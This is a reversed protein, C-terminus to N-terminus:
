EPQAGGCSTQTHPLSHLPSYLPGAWHGAQDEAEGSWDTPVRTTVQAHVPALPPDLSPEEAEYRAKVDKAIALAARPHSRCGSQASFEGGQYLSILEVCNSWVDPPAQSGTQCCGSLCWGRTSVVRWTHRTESSGCSWHARVRHGSQKSCM